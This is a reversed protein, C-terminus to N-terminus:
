QRALNQLGMAQLTGSTVIGAVSLGHDEQYRALAAETADGLVGDIPGHYYGERALEQQVKAVVSDSLGATYSQQDYYQDDNSGSDYYDPEYYYSYPYSYDYYGYPYDWWYPWSPDFGVDFVVWTGNVFRCRHGHWWYERNRNWDHHWEAGPRAFVHNRWNPRLNGRSIERTPNTAVSPRAIRASDGINSRSVEGSRFVGGTGSYSPRAPVSSIRQGSYIAPHSGFRQGPMANTSQRAGGGGRPRAGGFGGGPFGGGGHPGAYAPSIMATILMVAVTIVKTKM